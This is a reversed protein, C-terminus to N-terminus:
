IVPHEGEDDDHFWDVDESFVERAAAALEGLTDYRDTNSIADDRMRHLGMARTPLVILEDANASFSTHSLRLSSSM